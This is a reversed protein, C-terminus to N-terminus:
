NYPYQGLVGREELKKYFESDLVYSVRVENLDSGATNAIDKLSLGMTSYKHINQCIIERKAVHMHDFEKCWVEDKYRTNM